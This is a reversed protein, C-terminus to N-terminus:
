NDFWYIMRLASYDTEGQEDVYNKILQVRPHTSYKFLENIYTMKLGHADSKCQNYRKKTFICADASM